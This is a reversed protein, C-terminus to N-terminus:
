ADPWLRIVMVGHPPIESEYSDNFQGVEKQRWLDRVKQRGSIDIDDWNVSITAEENTLNFLGIATSGDELNKALVFESDSQRIIKAQKGLPDQNVEIIEHNCLVNLTFKDLKAMDGSFILPAARLSWM